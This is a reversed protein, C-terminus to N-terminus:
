KRCQDFARTLEAFIESLWERYPGIDQGYFRDPHVEKSGAFYAQRVAEDDAGPGVGLLELGHLTKLRRHLRVIRAKIEPDLAPGQALVAVDVPSGDDHLALLSVHSAPTNIRARVPQSVPVPAPTKAQAGPNAIANARRLKRLIELTAEAGLGSLRCIDDYTTSGDVRSLVFAETPTLALLGAVVDRNVM